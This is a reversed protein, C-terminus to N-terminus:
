IDSENLWRHHLIRFRRGLRGPPSMYESLTPQAPDVAEVPEPLRQVWAECWARGTVEGTAPNIADGYARIRFTDSRASLVPALATMVDASTVWQSSFEGVSENLGADAIAQEL